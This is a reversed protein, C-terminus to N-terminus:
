AASASGRRATIRRARRIPKPMESVRWSTEPKGGADGDARQLASAADLIRAMSVTIALARAIFAISWSM